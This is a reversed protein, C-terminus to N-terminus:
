RKSVRYPVSNPFFLPKDNIRYNAILEQTELSTIWHAFGQGLEANIEPHMEPNVPIVSYPNFLKTDGEVLIELTLGESQRKLYTGRDTLTYGGLEESMGLVAGMGQGASIYWDGEPTISLANWLSLEKVHTGSNDGRSVFTAGADMIQQLAATADTMGRIGASDESSGVIVFDNFMVDYRILGNGSAVFELEANRSHLLLVDADGSEGLAIAEGSGVAVVEVDVGYISEFNPLLYNMLGSDVTTTTTVLLLTHDDQASVLGLGFVLSLVLTLLIAKTHKM